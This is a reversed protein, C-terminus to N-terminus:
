ILTGLETTRPLQRTARDVGTPFAPSAAFQLGM